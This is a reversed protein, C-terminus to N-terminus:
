HPLDGVGTSLRTGMQRDGEEHRGRPNVGHDGIELSIVPQECYGQKQSCSCVGNWWSFNSQNRCTCCPDRTWLWCELSKELSQFPFGLELGNLSKTKALKQGCRAYGYAERPELAVLGRGKGTCV